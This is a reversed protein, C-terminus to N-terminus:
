VPKKLKSPPQFFNIGTKNLKANYMAQDANSLLTDMGNSNEPYVSIGVSCDIYLTGAPAKMPQRINNLVKELTRLVSQVQDIEELVVVFEDGGIRAVTDSSRLSQRIRQAVKVLVKDGVKHGYSDNIKKFDNLDFFCLAVQTHNRDAKILAQHLRDEFLIRNPLQTLPDHHAMTWLKQETAKQASIDHVLCQVLIRDAVQIRSCSIDVPLAEHRARQLLLDHHHGSEAFDGPEGRGEPQRFLDSRTLHSIAEPSYGCLELAQRNFDVVNWSDADFIFIADTAHQMLSRYRAESTQLQQCLDVIQEEVQHRDNIDIATGLITPGEATLQGCGRIRIWHSAGNHKKLRIDTEFLEKEGSLIAQAFSKLRRRDAAPIHRLMDHLTTIPLSPEGLLQRLWYPSIDFSQNSPHWRWFGFQHHLIDQLPDTYM